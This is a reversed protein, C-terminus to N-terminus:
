LAEAAAARANEWSHGSSIATRAMQEPLRFTEGKLTADQYFSLEFDGIQSSSARRHSRKNIFQNCLRQALKSGVAIGNNKLGFERKVQASLNLTLIEWV